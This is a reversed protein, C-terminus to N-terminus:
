VVTIVVTITNNNEDTEATKNQPDITFTVENKGVVLPVPLVHQKTKEGATFAITNGVIGLSKGTFQGYTSLTGAETSRFAIIGLNFTCKDGECKVAQTRRITIARGDTVYKDSKLDIASPSSAIYIARRTSLDVSGSRSHALPSIMMGLILICLTKFMIPKM